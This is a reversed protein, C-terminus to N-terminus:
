QRIGHDGQLRPKVLQDFASDNFGYLTRYFGRVQEELSVFAFAEPHLTKATWILGLIWRTDPQDWSFFDQPFGRIAGAKGAKLLAFRHDACMREVISDVRERYSIVLIADPNWVAIQEFGVVAWGEGPNAGLWVPEGGAMQIIRTQMWSSPPVKFSGASEQLVLVRPKPQNLTTRSVKEVIGKYYGILEASRDEEGFLRGLTELDRYYDEPTELDVYHVKIKLAELSRGVGTRLSSKLIALDPKYAAYVEASASRDLAPKSPFDPDLAQLFTGLGQDTGGVAIVRPRASPFAYVADAVLTVARGGLIIREPRAQSQAPAVAFVAALLAFGVRILSRTKM